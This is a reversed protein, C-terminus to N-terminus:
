FYIGVPGLINIEVGTIKAIIFSRFTTVMRAMTKNLGNEDKDRYLHQYGINLRSIILSKIGQCDSIEITRM